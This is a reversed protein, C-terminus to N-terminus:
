SPRSRRAEITSLMHDLCAKANLLEMELIPIAIPELRKVMEGLNMLDKQTTMFGDAKNREAIKRLKDIEGSSYRHHDPFAVM